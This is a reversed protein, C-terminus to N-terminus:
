VHRLTAAARGIHWHRQGARNGARPDEGWRCPYVGHAYGVRGLLQLGHLQRLAHCWMPYATKRGHEQQWRGAPPAALYPNIMELGTKHARSRGYRAEMTPRHSRRRATM